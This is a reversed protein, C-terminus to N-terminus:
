QFYPKKFAHMIISLNKFFDSKFSQNVLWRISNVPIEKKNGIKQQSSASSVQALTEKM